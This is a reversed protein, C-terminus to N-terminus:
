DIKSSLIEKFFNTYLTVNSHSSFKELNIIKLKDAKNSYKEYESFVKKMSDSSYDLDVEMWKSNEDFINNSVNVNKLKGPLLISHKKDVIDLHGSWKTALVPKGCLTSELIPRGFGEGRTHTVFVKTKPDIYISHMEETSLNGHLLYVNPLNDSEIGNKIERIKNRCKIYDSVSFNNCNVKLVLAPQKETDKFATLFSIVLSEINKRDGFESDVDWQGVSLFCFEEKISSIIECNESTSESYYCSDATEPIVQIPTTIGYVQKQENQYRSDTFSQKTFTSPVILYDMSNVGDIFEKGVCSTEVGATIGVNIKKGIQKFENPLGMQVFVDYEPFKDKDSIFYKSLKKELESNLGTQPNNGWPTAVLNFDFMQQSLLFNCFERAHDGYGSRSM